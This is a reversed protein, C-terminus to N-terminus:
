SHEFKTGSIFLHYSDSNIEMYNKEFWKVAIINTHEELKTLVFEFIQDWIYLTANNAFNYVGYCLFSLLDNLYINFFISGLVSRQPVGQLPASWFSLSKNISSKWSRDSM